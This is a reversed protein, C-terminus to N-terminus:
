LRVKLELSQLFSLNKSVNEQPVSFLIKFVLEDSATFNEITERIESSSFNELNKIKLLKQLVGERLLIKLAKGSNFYFEEFKKPDELM